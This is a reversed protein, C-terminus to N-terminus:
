IGRDCGQPPPGPRAHCTDTGLFVKAVVYRCVPYYGRPRLMKSPM